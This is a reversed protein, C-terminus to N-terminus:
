EINTKTLSKSKRKKNVEKARALESKEYDEQLKMFKRPAINRTKLPRENIQSSVPDANKTSKSKPLQKNFKKESLLDGAQEKRSKKSLKPTDLNSNTFVRDVNTPSKSKPQTKNLKEAM